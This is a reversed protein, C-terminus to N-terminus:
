SSFWVIVDHDRSSLMPPPIVPPHYLNGVTGRNRHVDRDSIAVPCQSFGHHHLQRRIYIYIYILRCMRVCVSANMRTYPFFFSSVASKLRNCTVRRWWKRDDNASGEGGVRGVRLARRSSSRKYPRGRVTWTQYGHEDHRRWADRERGVRM